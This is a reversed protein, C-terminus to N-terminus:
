SILFLHKRLCHCDICLSVWVKTVTTFPSTLDAFLKCSSLVPDFSIEEVLLPRSLEEGHPGKTLASANVFCFGDVHYDMVWHRLSDLIQQLILFPFFM